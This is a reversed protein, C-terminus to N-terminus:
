ATIMWEELIGKKTVINALLKMLRQQEPWHIYSEIKNTTIWRFESHEHNLIISDDPNVKAAFTPIHHICDAHADYFQNLSPITWFKQPYLRTEEKLERLAAEYYPERDNVKGGIMRWQKPYIVEATRKFILFRVENQEVSYPYVDVLRDM